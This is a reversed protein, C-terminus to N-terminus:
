AGTEPTCTGPDLAVSTVRHDSAQPVDASYGRLPVGAEAAAAELFALRTLEQSALALVHGRLCNWCEPQVSMIKVLVQGAAGLGPAMGTGRGEGQDLNLRNMSTEQTRDM